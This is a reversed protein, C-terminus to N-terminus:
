MVLIIQNLSTTGAITFYPHGYKTIEISLVTYALLFNMIIELCTAFPWPCFRVAKSNQDFCFDPSSKTAHWAKNLTTYRLPNAQLALGLM